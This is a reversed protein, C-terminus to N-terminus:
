IYECSCWDAWNLSSVGIYSNESFHKKMNSICAKERQEVEVRLSLVIRYANSSVEGIEGM